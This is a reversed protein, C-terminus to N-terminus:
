ISTELTKGYMCELISHSKRHIYIYVYIGSRRLHYVYTYICTYIYILIWSFRNHWEEKHQVRIRPAVWGEGGWGLHDQETAPVCPLWCAASWQALKPFLESVGHFGSSLSGTNRTSHISTQKKETPRAISFGMQIWLFQINQIYVTYVKTLTLSM